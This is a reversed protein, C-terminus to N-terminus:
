FINKIASFYPQLSNAVITGGRALWTTFRLMYATAAKLPTFGEEDCFVTFSRMETGYNDDTTPALSGAFLDLVLDGMDDTGVLAGVYNRMLAHCPAHASPKILKYKV